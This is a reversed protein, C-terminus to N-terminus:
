RYLFSNPCHVFDSYTQPNFLLGPDTNIGQCEPYVCLLASRVPVTGQLEGALPQSISVGPSSLSRFIPTSLVTVRHATEAVETYM